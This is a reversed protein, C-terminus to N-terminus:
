FVPFMDKMNGKSVNDLFREYRKRLGDPVDNSELAEKVIRYNKSVSTIADIYSDDALIEKSYPIRSHSGIYIHKGEGAKSKAGYEINISNINDINNRTQNEDLPRFTENCGNADSGYLGQETESCASAKDSAAEEHPTTENGYLDQKIGACASTQNESLPANADISPKCEPKDRFCWRNSEKDANGSKKNTLYGKEKLTKVANNYQTKNIGFREKADKSSLAFVYKDQNMGLYCWLKFPGADLNQAANLFAEMNYQAFLAKDSSTKVVEIVKQNPFTYINEQKM